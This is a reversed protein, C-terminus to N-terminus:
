PRWVKLECHRAAMSFDQDTTLLVHDGAIALQALLADISGLQIGRKRLANRLDAAALYDDYGPDLYDLDRFGREITSRAKASVLGHLLELLVVGTTAVLAAGNLARRLERVELVDPPVDRRLFLSWVSTDVLVAM